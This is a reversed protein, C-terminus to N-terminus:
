QSLSLTHGDPDKFWAVKSGGPASWVGTNDQEMGPFREFLVGRASLQEVAASVDPVEWGLVTYPAVVVERVKAVRLTTGHGRLVLSFMDDSVFELGLAGEYFARARDGDATAIFAVLPHKDLM